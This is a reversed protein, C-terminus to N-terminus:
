SNSTGPHNEILRDESAAHQLFIKRSLKVSALAVLTAAPVFLVDPISKIFKLQPVGEGARKAAMSAPPTALGIILSTQDLRNLKINKEMFELVKKKKGEEDLQKWEKFCEEIKDRSPVIWHKGPLAGNVTVFMDLIALHFGEFDTINKDVFSEHFKGTVKSILQTPLGKGMFSMILGM